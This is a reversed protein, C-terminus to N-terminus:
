WANLAALFRPRSAVDFIAAQTRMVSNLSKTQLTITVTLDLAPRPGDM